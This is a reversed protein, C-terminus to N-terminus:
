FEIPTHISPWKDGLKGHNLLKHILEQRTKAEEWTHERLYGENLTVWQGLIKKGYEDRKGYMQQYYVWDEDFRESHGGSTFGLRHAKLNRARMDAPSKQKKKRDSFKVNLNMSVTQLYARREEREKIVSQFSGWAQPTFPRACFRNLCFTTGAPSSRACRSCTIITKVEVEGSGESPHETQSVEAWVPPPPPPLNRATPFPQGSGGATGALTAPAAVMVLQPTGM